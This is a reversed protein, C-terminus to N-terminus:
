VLKKWGNLIELMSVCNREEFFKWASPDTAMEKQLNQAIQAQYTSLVITDAYTSAVALASILNKTPARPHGAYLEIYYPKSIKRRFCNALIDLWYAISYDMYLPTSIFDVYKSLEALDLGFRERGYCPDPEITLGLGCSINERVERVFSGIQEARWDLLDGGTAQHADTCTQCDCYGERPFCVSDLRIGAVKEDAVERIFKLCYNRYETRTPCIWDWLFHRPTGRRAREGKCTAVLDPEKEAVTNDAFCNIVNWANPLPPLKRGSSPKVEYFIYDFGQLIKPEDLLVGIKLDTCLASYAGGGRFKEGTGM